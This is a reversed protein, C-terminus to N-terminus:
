RGCAPGHSGAKSTVRRGCLGFVRLGGAATSGWTWGYGVYLDPGAITPGGAAGREFADRGGPDGIYRALLTKGTTASHARLTGDWTTFFLVDNAVAIGGFGGSPLSRRWKVRGDAANVALLDASTPYLGSPNLSTNGVVYVTGHAYATTEEVGGLHSGPVLHTSWALRGTRRDFAKYTGGKDGAGVLERGGATFLNPAAGVDWDRGRFTPGSFVDGATYQHYWAIRGTRYDIALLSDSMPGAPASYAQGTGIYALHLSPDVAASSWVSVGTCSGTCVKTRWKIAGTRANLGVVSGQFPPYDPIFVQYSASGVILTDGVLVPSSWIRTNPTPEIRTGWEIAGTRRQVAFVMGGDGATFVTGRSVFPSVSLQGTQVHSRWVLRGSAADRAIVNGGFDSYYVVGGVVAPTSTVAQDPANWRQRLGGVNAAGIPSGDASRSNALDHGFTPWDMQARGRQLTGGVRAIEGRTAGLGLGAFLGFWVGAAAVAGLSRAM